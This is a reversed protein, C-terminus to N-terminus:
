AEAAAKAIKIGYKVRVIQKYYKLRQRYRTYAEIAGPLFGIYFALLMTRLYANLALPKFTIIDIFSNLLPIQLLVAIFIGVALIKWPSSGIFSLWGRKIKSIEATKNFYPNFKSFSGLSVKTLGSIAAFAIWVWLGVLLGFGLDAIFNFVDKDFGLKEVTFDKAKEYFNKDQIAENKCSFALRRVPNWNKYWLTRLGNDFGDSFAISINTSEAIQTEESIPCVLKNLVTNFLVFMLIIVVIIAGIIVAKWNIRGRKNM